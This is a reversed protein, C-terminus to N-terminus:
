TVIVCNNDPIKIEDGSIVISTALWVADPQLRFSQFDYMSALLSYEPDNCSLM